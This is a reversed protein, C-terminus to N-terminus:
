ERFNGDGPAVDVVAFDDLAEDVRQNVFTRLNELLTDGLAGGVDVEDVQIPVTKGDQAASRHEVRVGDSERFHQTGYAAM